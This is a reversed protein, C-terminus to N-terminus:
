DNCRRGRHFSSGDASEGCLVCGSIVAVVIAVIVVMTVSSKYLEGILIVHMQALLVARYLHAQLLSSLAFHKAFISM